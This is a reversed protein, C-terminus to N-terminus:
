FRRYIGMLSNVLSSEMNSFITKSFADSINGQTISLWLDAKRTLDPKNINIGCANAIYNMLMINDAMALEGRTNLWDKGCNTIMFSSYLDKIEMDIEIVTPLGDLTWAGQDGKSISMSTVIGMDITFLGKYFARVLYPSEYANAADVVQRPAVFGLLHFMPVLCNLYISLKDHDPSVFKFKLNHSTSHDSSTWIEPFIMRAGSAVTIAKNGVSKIFNSKTVSDLWADFEAISSSVDESLVDATAGISSTANGMLFNLERATDSLSNVKSALMSEGTGNGFSESVSTESDVYFAVCQQINLLGHVKDNTNRWWTTTSGLKGNGDLEIDGIGLYTAAARCMPDVHNYYAGLKNVFDYYRGERNLVDDNSKLLGDISKDAITDILVSAINKKDASSYTPMFKPVGPALLALPMQTVIREAFKRGFIGLSDSGDLRTDASPLFQYPIGHIGRMNETDMHTSVYEAYTAANTEIDGTSTVEYIYWDPVEVQEADKLAAEMEEPTIESPDNSARRMSVSKVLYEGTSTQTNIWGDECKVWSGDRESTIINEGKYKCGIKPFSTSPGSRVILTGATVELMTTEM